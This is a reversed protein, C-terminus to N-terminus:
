FLSKFEKKKLDGYATTDSYVAKTSGSATEGNCDLKGPSNALDESTNGVRNYVNVFM